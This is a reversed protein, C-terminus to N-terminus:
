ENTTMDLITKNIVNTPSFSPQLIPITPSFPHGPYLYKKYKNKANTPSFPHDASPCVIRTSSSCSLVTSCRAKCLFVTTNGNGSWGKQAVLTKFEHNGSWHSTERVVRNKYYDRNRSCQYKQCINKNLIKYTYDVGDQPPM